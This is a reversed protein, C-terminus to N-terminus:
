SNAGFFTSLQNSSSQPQQQNNRGAQFPQYNQNKSPGRSVPYGLFNMNLVNKLNPIIM